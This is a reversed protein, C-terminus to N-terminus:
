ITCDNLCVDVVWGAGGGGERAGAADWVAVILDVFDLVPKNREDARPFAMSSDLVARLESITTRAPGLWLPPLDVITSTASSTSAASSVVLPHLLHGARILVHLHLRYVVARRAPRFSPPLPLTTYLQFLSVLQERRVSIPMTDDLSSPGPSSFSGALLIIARRLLLEIWRWLERYRTFATSPPPTPITNTPNISTSPGSPPDRPISSTLAFILPLASLYHQLATKKDNKQEFSM